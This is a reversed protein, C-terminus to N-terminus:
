EDPEGRKQLEDYRRKLSEELREIEKSWHRKLGDQYKKSFSDWNEAYKQPNAIKDRHIEIQRKLSRISHRLSSSKQKELDIEVAFLQLNPTLSGFKTQSIIDRNKSYTFEKNQSTRQTGTFDELDENGKTGDVFRAKWEEYSMDGPIYYQQSEESGELPSRAIREGVMDDFYPAFDANLNDHQM